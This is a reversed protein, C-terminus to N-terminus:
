FTFGRPLRPQQEMIYWQCGVCCGGGSLLQETFVLQSFVQILSYYLHRLKRGYPPQFDTTQLSSRAQLTPGRETTTVTIQQWRQFVPISDLNRAVRPLRSSAATSPGLQLGRDGPPPVRLPCKAGQAELTRALATGRM